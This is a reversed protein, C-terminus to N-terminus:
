EYTKGKWSGYKAALKRNRHEIRKKHAIPDEGPHNYGYREQCTKQTSIMRQAYAVKKDKHLNYKKIYYYITSPSMKLDNGIDKKTKNLIIYHLYLYRSFKYHFMINSIAACQKDLAATVQEFTTNLSSITNSNNIKENLQEADM